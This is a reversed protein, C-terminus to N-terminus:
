WGDIRVGTEIGADPLIYHYIITPGGVGPWPSNVGASCMSNVSTPLRCYAYRAVTCCGSPQYINQIGGHLAKAAQKLIHHTRVGTSEPDRGQREGLLRSCYLYIVM